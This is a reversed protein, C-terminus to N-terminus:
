NLMLFQSKYGDRKTKSLWWAMKQSASWIIKRDAPIEEKKKKILLVIIIILTVLIIVPVLVSLFIIMLISGGAGLGFITLFTKTTKRFKVYDLCGNKIEGTYQDCISEDIKSVLPPYKNLTAQYACSRQFDGKINQCYNPDSIERQSIYTKICEEQYNFTLGYCKSIDEPYQNLTMYSYCKSKLEEPVKTCDDENVVNPLFREFCKERSDFFTAGAQVQWCDEITQTQAAVCRDRVIFDQINNCEKPSQANNAYCEDQESQNKIIACEELSTARIVKVPIM